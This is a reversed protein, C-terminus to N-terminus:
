NKIIPFIKIIENNSTIKMYYIGTSLRNANDLKIQYINESHIKNSITKIKKGKIDYISIEISPITSSLTYKLNVKDKFPNPYITIHPNNNSIISNKHAIKKNSVVTKDKFNGSNIFHISDANWDNNLYSWNSIIQGENKSKNTVLHINTGYKYSIDKKNENPHKYFLAIDEKRDNNFDGTSINIIDDLNWEKEYTEPAWNLIIENNNSDSKILHIQFGFYNKNKSLPFQYRYIVAIDTNGDNNFDGSVVKKVDSLNWEKEYTEPVWNIITKSGGKGDSTILHIQCGFYDKNQSPPFQYKYFIAIDDNGDNNFDGSVAHEINNSNWGNEYIEPVWNSIIKGKEDGESTILHVQCGFYDKNQSPPFQYKYFVAIDDNGDNNFDGPLTYLISESNWSNIINECWHLKTEMTNNNPNSSILHLSTPIGDFESSNNNPYKYFVAIDDNNDNNFDASITHTISDANWQNLLTVWNHTYKKTSSEHSNILHINPTSNFEDTRYNYFVAIDKGKIYPALEMSIINTGYGSLNTSFTKKDPAIKGITNPNRYDKEISAIGNLGPMKYKGISQMPIKDNIILNEPIKINATINKNTSNIIFLYYKNSNKAKKFTYRVAEEKVYSGKLNDELLINDYNEQLEQLEKTQYLTAKWLSNDIDQTLFDYESIGSSLLFSARQHGWFSIGDAGGIIADFTLQRIIKDYNIIKNSLTNQTFDCTNQNFEYKEEPFFWSTQIVAWIPKEPYENKLLHTFEGVSTKESPYCHMKTSIQGNPKFPYYDFSIIDSYKVVENYSLNTNTRNRFQLTSEFPNNNYSDNTKRHYYPAVSFNVYSLKKGKLFNNAQWLNRIQKFSEINNLYTIPEDPFSYISARDNVLHRDSRSLGIKKHSNCNKIFFDYNNNDHRHENETFVMNFGWNSSEYWFNNNNISLNRAESSNIFHRIGDQNIVSTNGTLPDTTNNDNFGYLMVPFISKKQGDSEDTYVINKNEDISLEPQDKWAQQSTAIIPVMLFVIYLLAYNKTNM